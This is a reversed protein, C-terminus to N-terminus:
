AGARTGRAGGAQDAQAGPAGGRGAGSGGRSGEGVRESQLKEFAPASNPKAKSPGRDVGDEQDGGHHTFRLYPRAGALAIERVATPLSGM